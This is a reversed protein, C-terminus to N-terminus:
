IIDCILPFSNKVVTLINEKYLFINKCFNKNTFKLILILDPINLTTLLRSMQCFVFM